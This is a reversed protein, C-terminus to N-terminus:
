ALARRSNQSSGVLIYDEGSVDKGYSSCIPYDKNKERVNLFCRNRFDTVGLTFEAGSKDKVYILHEGDEIVKKAIICKNYFDEPTLSALDFNQEKICDRVSDLLARSEAKRYDYGTGFYGVLGGYLGIAIVAMMLFYVTYLVGTGLVGKKNM